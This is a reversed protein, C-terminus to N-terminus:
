EGTIPDPRNGVIFLPVPEEDPGPFMGTELTEIENSLRARLADFDVRFRAAANSDTERRQRARLELTSMLSRVAWLKILENARLPDELLSQEFGAHLSKLYLYSGILDVEHDELEEESLAMYSRVDEVTVALPIFNVLRYTSYISRPNGGSTFNLQVYRYELDRTINQHAADLPLVATTFKGPLNGEDLLTGDHDRLVWTMSDEDCVVFNGRLILPVHLTVPGGAFFTSM